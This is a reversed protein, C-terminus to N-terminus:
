LINSLNGHSLGLYIIFLWFLSLIVFFVWVCMVEFEGQIHFGKLNESLSFSYSCLSLSLSLSLSLTIILFPTYFCFIWFFLFVISICTLICRVITYKLMWVEISLIKPIEQRHLCNRTAVNLVCESKPPLLVHWLKHTLNEKRCSLTDKLEWRMRRRIHKLIWIILHMIM